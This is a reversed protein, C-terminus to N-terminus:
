LFLEANKLPLIESGLATMELRQDSLEFLLKGRGLRGLLGKYCLDGFHFFSGAFRRLGSPDFFLIKGRNASFMGVGLEFAVTGCALVTILGLLDDFKSASGFSEPHLDVCKRFAYRNDFGFTASEDFLFM